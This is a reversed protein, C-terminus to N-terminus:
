LLPHFSFDLIGADSRLTTGLTHTQSGLVLSAEGLNIYLKLLCGNAGLSVLVPICHRLHM